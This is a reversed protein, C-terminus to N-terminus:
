SLADLEAGADRPSLPGVRISRIVGASDIFVHSPLGMVRYAAAVRDVDPAGARCNACWTAGFVLWVPRGRLESLTIARGDVARATFEAAPDGVAPPPTDPELSAAAAPSDGAGAGGTPGGRALWVGAAIVSAALGVAAAQRWGASRAPSGPRGPSDATPM